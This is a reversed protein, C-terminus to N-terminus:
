GDTKGSIQGDMLRMWRNMTQGHTRRDMQGDTRRDTQGDTRRDTQGDTRRDTQGDTRRDKLLSLIYYSRNSSV